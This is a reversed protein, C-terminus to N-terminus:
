CRLPGGEFSTPVNEQVKYPKVPELIDECNEAELLNEPRKSSQYSQTFTPTMQNIPAIPSIVGDGGSPVGPTSFNEYFSGETSNGVGVEIEGGGEFIEFATFLGPTAPELLVGVEHKAKNIYGLKGKLPNVQIEGAPLGFGTAPVGFSQCGKFRVSIGAVENAGAAEGSAHETECEVDPNGNEATRPNM